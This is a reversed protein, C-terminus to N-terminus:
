RSYLKWNILMKFAYCVAFDLLMTGILAMNPFGEPLEHLELLWRLDASLDFAAVLVIGMHVLLVRILIKNNWISEMFPEGQYNLLFNTADVFALYLFVVTNMVSPKFESDPKAIDAPNTYRYSLNTLFILGSLHVIFQVAVSSIQSPEFISTPPRYPQLKRLPQARSILFFYFAIPIGFVASQFDGSKLGLQYLVSLAYALMVGNIALIKYMQLTTVLTCRGQRLVYPVSKISEYKYTFPAAICADGVTSVDEMMARRYRAKNDKKEEATEEKNILAIGIHARKLSGVDNTGDGCMLTVEGRGNFVGIILDKQSPSTRAFVNISGIVDSKQSDKWGSDSDIFALCDGDVCAKNGRMAETIAMPDKSERVVKGEANTVEILAEEGANGTKKKRLYVLKQPDVIGVEEAVHAATYQNDGTIIVIKHQSDRLEQIKRKTDAKLPCSTVIFGCFTLESEAEPRPIKVTSEVDKHALCLVRAGQKTFQKVTNDFEAPVAKLLGRMVEPAGKALVRKLLQGSNSHKIQAIVSMRKLASSFPYRCAIIGEIENDRSSGREKQPNYRWGLEEFAVRELPDGLITKADSMAISHCLGLVYMADPLEQKLDAIKLLKGAADVVGDVRMKDSTLTGTKDFCCVTVRGAAPIRYPETCFIAHKMLSLISNNVALSLEMPLEPPVVSALILISKVVVRYKDREPDNLGSYLVYSSAVLAFCLLVLLFLFADKSEVTVREASFLVTRVLKGQTTQFGTRLVYAICSQRNAPNTVNVGLPKDADRMCQVIETKGWLIHAKHIGSKISFTENLDDRSIVPEKIQPISEGTLISEDVTCTGSLLLMDCPLRNDPEGRAKNQLCVIDGPVLEETSLMKWTGNRHVQIERQRIRMGRIRQMNKLRSVVVISEFIFLMIFSAMSFYWYDELMWLITCFIQFVFFPAVVHERFLDIFKPTPIEMANRGYKALADKLEANKAIGSSACYHKFSMEVSLQPKFFQAKEPDYVYEQKFYDVYKQSTPQQGDQKILIPCLAARTRNEKHFHKTVLVHTAQPIGVVSDFRIRGRLPVSWYSLLFTVAQVLLTLLPVCHCVWVPFPACVALIISPPYLVIFPLVDWRLYGAKPRLPAFTMGKM